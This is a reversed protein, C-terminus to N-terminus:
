ISSKDIYGIHHRGFYKFFYLFFQPLLIYSKSGWYNQQPASARLQQGRSGRSGRRHFQFLLPEKIGMARPETQQSNIRWTAGILLKLRLPAVPRSICTMRSVSSHRTSLTSMSVVCVALRALWRCAAQKSMGSENISQNLRGRGMVRCLYYLHSLVRLKPETRNPNQSDSPNRDTIFRPTTNEQLQLVAFCSLLRAEKL